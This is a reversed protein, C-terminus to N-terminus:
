LRNIKVGRPLQPAVVLPAEDDNVATPAAAVAAVDDLSFVLAAAAAAVEIAFQLLKMM